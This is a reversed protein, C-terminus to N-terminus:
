KTRSPKIKEVAKQIQALQRQLQKVSTNIEKLMRSQIDANKLHRQFIAGLMALQGTQKELQGSVKAFNKDEKSKPKKQGSPRHKGATGLTEDLAVPMDGGGIYEEKSQVEEQLEEKEIENEPM